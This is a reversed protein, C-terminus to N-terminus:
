AGPETLLPQVLLLPARLADNLHLERGLDDGERQHRLACLRGVVCRDKILDETHTCLQLQVSALSMGLMQQETLCADESVDEVEKGPCGAKTKGTETIESHM